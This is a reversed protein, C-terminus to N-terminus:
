CGLDQRDYKDIELLRNCVRQLFHEEAEEKNSFYQGYKYKKNYREWIAYHTQDGETRSGLVFEETSGNIQMIDIIRYGNHETENTAPVRKKRLQNLMDKMQFHWECDVNLIALGCTVCMLNMIDTKREWHPVYIPIDTKKTVWIYGLAKLQEKLPYSDGIIGIVVYPDRLYFRACPPEKPTTQKPAPM